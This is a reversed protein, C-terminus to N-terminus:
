DRLAALAFTLGGILLAVLLGLYSLTLPPGGAGDRSLDIAMWLMGCAPLLNLLFPILFLNGRNFFQGLFAGVFWGLPFLILTAWAVIRELLAPVSGSGAGAAEPFLMEIGGFVMGFSLIALPLALILYSIWM